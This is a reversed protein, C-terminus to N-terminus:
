VNVLYVPNQIPNQITPLNLRCHLFELHHECHHRLNL